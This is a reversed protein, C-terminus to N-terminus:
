EGEEEVDGGVRSIMVKTEDVNVWLGESEMGINWRQFREMAEIQSEAVLVLDDAYVLEWPFGTRSDKSLVELVM